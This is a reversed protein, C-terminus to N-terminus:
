DFAENLAEAAGPDELRRVRARIQEKSYGALALDAAVILPRVARPESRAEVSQHRPAFASPGGGYVVRARPKPRPQATRRDIVANVRPILAHIRQVCANLDRIAAEIERPRARQSSGTPAPEDTTM